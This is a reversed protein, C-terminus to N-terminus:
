KGKARRKADRKDQRSMKSWRWNGVSKRANVKKPKPKKVM